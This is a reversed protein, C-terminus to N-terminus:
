AKGNDIQRMIIDYASESTLHSCFYQYGNQSMQRRLENNECMKDFLEFVKKKDSAVAWYGAGSKEIFYGYDNNPNIMAFIPIGLSMYSVAKSPCTPVKYDENISILGIDASKILSLYEDRPLFDFFRVNELRAERVLSLLRDKAIGKGIILFLIDAKERNHEILSFINEIKQGFGINGGFLVLIKNNLGYKGRIDQIDNLDNQRKQWNQLLVLKSKDIFPYHSSIFDINGQSMCGIWNALKYAKQAKHELYNYMFKYKILGISAASQPHIDRLILYFQAKTKKKVYSVFDILTIPPTPMLILDFNDHGLYKKYARIFNYPMLALSIGKKILNSIGQSQPTDVRIIKMETEDYEGEPYASSAPAIITVAHNHNIFEEALDSYMNSSEDSYELMTFLIKM